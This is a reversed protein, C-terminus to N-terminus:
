AKEYGFAVAEVVAEELWASGSVVVRVVEVVAAVEGVDTDAWAATAAGIVIDSGDVVKTIEVTVRGAEVTVTVPEGCVTVSVIVITGGGVGDEAISM